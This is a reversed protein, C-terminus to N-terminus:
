WDKIIDKILRQNYSVKGREIFPLHDDEIKGDTSMKQFIRRSYNKLANGNALKTEANALVKYWGQTESFFSYFTPNSAGLLDM